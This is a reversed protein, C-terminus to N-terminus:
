ADRRSVKRRECGGRAMVSGALMDKVSSSHTTPQRSTNRKLPMGGGEEKSETAARPLRRRKPPATEAHIDVHMQQPYTQEGLLTLVTRYFYGRNFASRDPPDAEIVLVPVPVPSLGYPSLSPSFAHERPPLLLERVQGALSEIM